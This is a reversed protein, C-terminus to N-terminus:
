WWITVEDYNGYVDSVVFDFVNANNCDYYYSEVTAVWVNYGVPSFSYYDWGDIYVGVWLEDNYYSYSAEVDATFYWVFGGWYYDYECDVQAYDVWVSTDSSQYDDGSTPECYLICGSLTLALLLILNRFM